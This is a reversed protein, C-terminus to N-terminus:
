NQMHDRFDQATLELYPNDLSYLLTHDYIAYPNEKISWDASRPMFFRMFPSRWFDAWREENRYSRYHARKVQEMLIKEYEDPEVMAAYPKLDPRNYWPNYLPRKDVTLQAFVFGAAACTLLSYWRFTRRSHFTPELNPFDHIYRQMPVAPTGGTTRKMRRGIMAAVPWFLASGFVWHVFFAEKYETKIQRTNKWPIRKPGAMYKHFRPTIWPDSRMDAALFDM